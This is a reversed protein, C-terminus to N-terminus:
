GAQAKELVFRAFEPDELAWSGTVASAIGHRALGKLATQVRGTTLSRDGIKRALAKVSDESFPKEVGEALTAAVARQLPNLRLWQDEFGLALYIRGRLRKLATKAAADPHAIMDDILLRFLYPNAGLDEFAAIMAARDLKRTTAARFAAIMHDVFEDGLRPLDIDTAFHFFPASRASFMRRLGDQHSGTFIVRVGSSQKDLSTRLAAVLPENSKDKALEQVEDLLIFAPKGPTALKEILKDMRLLLDATPAGKPSELGVDISAGGGSLKISARAAGAVSEVLGALSEGAFSREIADILMAAPSRTSQWFNAYVVQRGRRQAFPAFDKRLFETKGIRRPGFLLLARAPGKTLAQFTREALDRRPYHWIDKAM